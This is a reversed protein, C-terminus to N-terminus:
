QHTEVRRGTTLLLRQWQRRWHGAQHGTCKQAPGPYGCDLFVRVCLSRPLFTPRSLAGATPPWTCLRWFSGRERKRERERERKSGWQM